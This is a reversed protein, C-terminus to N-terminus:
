SVIIIVPLIISKRDDRDRETLLVSSLINENPDKLYLHFEKSPKQNKDILLGLTMQCFKGGEINLFVTHKLPLPESHLWVAQAKLWSGVM